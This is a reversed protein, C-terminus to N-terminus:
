RWYPKCDLARELDARPACSWSRPQAAQALERPPVQLRELLAPAVALTRCRASATRCRACPRSSASRRAAAGQRRSVARCFFERRTVCSRPRSGCRTCDADDLARLHRGTRGSSAASATSRPPPSDAATQDRPIAGLRSRVCTPSGRRDCSTCRDGRGHRHWSKRPAPAPANARRPPSCPRARRGDARDARRSRAGRETTAALWRLEGRMHEFREDAVIRRSSRSRALAVPPARGPGPAASRGRRHPRASGPQARVSRLCSLVIVQFAEGASAEQSARRAPGRRADRRGCTPRVPRSACPCGARASMQM